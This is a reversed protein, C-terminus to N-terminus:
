GEVGPTWHFYVLELCNGRLFRLASPRYKSIQLDIGGMELGKNHVGHTEKLLM